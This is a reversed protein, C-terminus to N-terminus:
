SRPALVETVGERFLLQAYALHFGVMWSPLAKKASPNCSIGALRLECVEQGGEEEDSKRRLVSFRHVGKLRGTDSGYVFDVHSETERREGDRGDGDEVIQVSAVQFAGGLQMGVEWEEVGRVQEATWLGRGVREGEERVAGVDVLSGGGVAKWASLAWGEPAFARGGFFGAVFRGLVERDAM